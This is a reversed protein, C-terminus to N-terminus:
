KRGVILGHNLPLDGVHQSKGFGAELLWKDYDKWPYLMGEGTAIALFYPSGLATSLPGTDDDNAMMNFILVRGGEDLASYTRRLLKLNNEPSWITFIHSYLVADIGSPFPDSLFNGEWTNIRESLGAEAIKEKAIECVSPSDFITVRLSPYRTAFAIANTGDGGGADVLHNVDALDLVKLLHTNAQSSLASMAEQFVTETEPHNVLREYLTNGQGPFHRLGVNENKKLSEVFDELGPYVIHAQWGLIPSASGEKETVLMQETLAANRYENGEKVILKLATLGVLLIRAPQRELALESCVDGLTVNKTRSLLSFLGLEVGAWLLQFATHGGAILVLHEFTLEDTIKESAM